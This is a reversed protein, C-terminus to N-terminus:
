YYHKKEFLKSFFMFLGSIVCGLSTIRLLVVNDVPFSASPIYGYLKALCLAGFVFIVLGLIVAFTKGAQGRHRAYNYNHSSMLSSLVQLNLFIEM